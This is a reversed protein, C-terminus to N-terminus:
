DEFENLHILQTQNDVMDGVKVNIKEVIAKGPAVINNEMKMAEVVILITGRNVPDGEKVNIQIVKGPM